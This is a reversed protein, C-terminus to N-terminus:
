LKKNIIIKKLGSGKLLFDLVKKRDNSIFDYLNLRTISLVEHANFDKSKKICWLVKKFASINEKSNKLDSFNFQIDLIKKNELLIAVILNHYNFKTTFQYLLDQIVPNNELKFKIEKLLSYKEKYDDLFNLFNLVKKENCIFLIKRSNKLIM